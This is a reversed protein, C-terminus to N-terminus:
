MKSIRATSGLPLISARYRLGRGILMAFASAVRSAEFSLTKTSSRAGIIGAARVRQHVISLLVLELPGIKLRRQPLAEIHVENPHPLHRGWTEIMAGLRSQGLASM